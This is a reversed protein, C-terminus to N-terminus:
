GGRRPCDRRRWRARAPGRPPPTWDSSPQDAPVTGALRASTTRWRRSRSGGGVRSSSCTAATIPRSTSLVSSSRAAPRPASAKSSRSGAKACRKRSSTASLGPVNRNVCASNRSTSISSIVVNRSARSCRRTASAISDRASRESLSASIRASCRYAARESPTPARAATARTLFAAPTATRREAYEAASSIRDREASSSTVASPTSSRALASSSTSTARNKAWRAVRPWSTAM